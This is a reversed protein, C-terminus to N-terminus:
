FTYSFGVTIVKVIGADAIDRLFHKFDECTRESEAGVDRALTYTVVQSILYLCWLTSSFLM